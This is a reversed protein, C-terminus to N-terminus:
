RRAPSKRSVQSFGNGGLEAAQTLARKVIHADKGQDQKKSQRKHEQRARGSSPSGM